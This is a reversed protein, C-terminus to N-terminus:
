EGAPAEPKAPKAEPASDEPVAPTEAPQPADPTTAAEASVAEPAAAAEAAVPEPRPEPRPAPKPEPVAEVAGTRVRKLLAAVSESPIAGREVWYSVREQDIQIQAPRMVPNYYGVKELFRGERPKRSDTVVVRFFPHNRGGARQM